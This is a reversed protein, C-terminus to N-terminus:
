RMFAYCPYTILGGVGIAVVAVSGFALILPLFFLIIMWFFGWSSMCTSLLQQTATFTCGDDGMRLKLVLCGCCIVSSTLTSALTIPGFVIIQVVSLLRACFRACTSPVAADNM